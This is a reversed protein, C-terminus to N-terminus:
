NELYTDRIAIAEPLIEKFMEVLKPDFHKGAQNDFLEM